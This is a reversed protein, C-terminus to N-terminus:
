VCVCTSESVDEQGVAKFVPDATFLQTIILVPFCSLCLHAPLQKRIYKIKGSGSMQLTGLICRPRTFPIQPVSGLCSVCASIYIRVALFFFVAINEQSGAIILM